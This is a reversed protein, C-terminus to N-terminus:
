KTKYNPLLSEIAENGLGTIRSLKKILEDKCSYLVANKEKSAAKITEMEASTIKRGLTEEIRPIMDRHYNPNTGYPPPMWKRIQGLDIGTMRSVTLAFKKKAESMKQYNVKFAQIIEMKEQMNLTRGLQEEIKAFIERAKQSKGSSSLGRGGTMATGQGKSSNMRRMRQRLMERIKMRESLDLKGNGDLDFKKGYFDRRSGAQFNSDGRSRMMSTREFDTDSGQTKAPKSYKKLLDLIRTNGRSVAISRPTAGNDMRADVEAGNELLIRAVEVHGEKRGKLAAFHLPTAGDESRHVNVLAGHAILIKAAEPQAQSAAVHLPTGGHINKVNVDAKYEDLLIKMIELQGRGTAWHLPTKGQDCMEYLLGPNSDLLKKLTAADGNKAAEHIEGAYGSVIVLMFVVIFMVYKKRAM